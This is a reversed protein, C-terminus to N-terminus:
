DSDPAHKAKQRYSLLEYLVLLCAGTTIASDAVNFDPWSHIREGIRVWVHIFDVVFGYFIRDLLNGIAGGLILGFALAPIRGRRAHIVLMWAIMVVAVGIVLHLIIRSVPGGESFLSFAIGRNRVHTITLGPLVDIWQDPRLPEINQMVLLKTVRDLAVIILATLWPMLRRM